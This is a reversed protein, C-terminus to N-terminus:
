MVTEASRSPPGVTEDVSGAGPLRVRFTTGEGEESTVEITGGHARVIANVITLGLGTGEIAREQATSARFFRDFLRRQEAAPIGIGDDSVALVIDEGAAGLAVVVRGGPETFKVANSVLNDLLQGLRAPDGMLTSVPGAELRLDIDRADAVPRLGEAADRALGALDVEELDLTLKGSEIQAVLLLDSVLRLLRASNRDVVDLFRRHDPSLEPDDLVLELYGTISTLPTRLEHSVLAVFEDKMRDLERLRDNQDLLLRQASEAERLAARESEHLAEREEVSRELERVLGALRALVLFALLAAGIVIAPVNQVGGSLADLALVAPAAASAAALAALRRRTLAPTAASTPLVDTAMSPHLAAGAISIYASLWLIGLPTTDWSSGAVQVGLYALDGAINLSVGAALLYIAVTAAGPLLLLRVLLTLLLIDMVPYAASIVRDLVPWTADGSSPAVLFVWIAVSVSVMIIATDIASARSHARGVGPVRGLGWVGAALLPYGALYFGDAASPSPDQELAFWYLDWTIEGAAFSGIGAAILLWAGRKAPRYIIVGAVIAVAALAAAVDFAMAGWLTSSWGVYMPIAVVCLAAFAAPLRFARIGESRLHGM